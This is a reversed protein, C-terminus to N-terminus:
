ADATESAFVARAAASVDLPRIERINERIARTAARNVADAIVADADAISRGTLVGVCKGITGYKLVYRGRAVRFLAENIYRELDTHEPVDFRVKESFRGGRVAAADLRSYHNTAAIFIVDQIRGGAGDLTTLIRNTLPAVNSYQRVALIDDAEDIFVLAPRIDSAERVIREWSDPRALIDVGSTKLFAYKSAKALSMAAQTKGTGPPGYFLLGRPLSGGIQELRHVERMRYALDRLVNRSEAPMIIDDIAKVNEPLKGRRGQLLRMARMAIDFTVLGSFQGDLQMERLQGGLATLRSASFGEWRGALAEATAKSVSQPGLKRCIAHGILNIRAPLDPPSIEIKFDFRGERIGANDLQEIYNTAAVLIVGSGRLNVIETLMTNVMDRDMSHVHTSGDRPKLFSDIEDILLVCAGTRRATKFVAKIKEPTDNVWKSAADGFSIPLFPVELEGALAEAFLTKGNGPEGFLLIGNREDGVDDGAMIDRAARLLRRKTDAMGVVNRFTRRPQRVCDSFDHEPQKRPTPSPPRETTAPPKPVSKRIAPRQSDEQSAPAPPASLAAPTTPTATVVPVPRALPIPGSLGIRETVVPTGRAIKADLPVWVRAGDVILRDSARRARYLNQFVSFNM